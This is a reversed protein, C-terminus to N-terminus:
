FPSLIALLVMKCRERVKAGVWSSEIFASSKRLLFTRLFSKGMGLKVSSLDVKLRRQTKKKEAVGGGDM